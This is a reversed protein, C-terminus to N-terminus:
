RQSERQRTLDREDEPFSNRDRVRLYTVAGMARKMTGLVWRGQLGYLFASHQKQVTVARIGLFNHGLENQEGPAVEMQEISTPKSKLRYRM